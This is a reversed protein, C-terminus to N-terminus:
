WKKWSVILNSFGQSERTGGLYDLIADFGQSELQKVIERNAEANYPLEIFVHNESKGVRKIEKEIFKLTKEVDCEKPSFTRAMEKATIM